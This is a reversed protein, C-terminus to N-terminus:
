KLLLYVGEELLEQIKELKEEPLSRSAKVQLNWWEKLLNGM